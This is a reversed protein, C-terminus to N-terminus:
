HRWIVWQRKGDPDSNFYNRYSEQARDLGLAHIMKRKQAESLRVTM